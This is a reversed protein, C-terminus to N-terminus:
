APLGLRKNIVDWRARCDKLHNARLATHKSKPNKPRRGGHNALWARHNDIIRKQLAPWDIIFFEDSGYSKLDVFVYILGDIPAAKPAGIVQKDGDFTVEAFDGIDLQWSGRRRAKVQIPVYRGRPGSAIIDFHRVKAAFMGCTAGRRALEAAVLYEGAQHTAVM